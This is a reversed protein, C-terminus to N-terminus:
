VQHIYAESDKYTEPIDGIGWGTGTPEIYYYKRGEYEWYYGPMDDDGYIGVAMHGPPQILVTDYGFPEAQLVAALMIATDECDGGIETITETIFKTYDDFGKSVDDPVYPLSQVFDIVFEVQMRKETFDNAEAEEALIGAIEDAFGDQQSYSVYEARSRGRPEEVAQRYSSKYIYFNAGWSNGETTGEFSLNYAGEVATREYTEGSDDALGKPDPSREITVGDEHLVFPDSEHFFVLDESSVEDIEADGQVLFALYHLQESDSVDVDSFDLSATLTTTGDLTVPDSTAFEVGESRPYRYAFALLKASEGTFKGSINPGDPVIHATVSQSSYSEIHSVKDNWEDGVSLTNASESKSTTAPTTETGTTTDTRTTEAQATEPEGTTTATATSTAIAELDSKSQVDEDKPAYDESDAVGDGDTDTETTTTNSDSGACGALATATVVSGLFRRREM